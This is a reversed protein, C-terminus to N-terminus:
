LIHDGLFSIETKGEHSNSLWSFNRLGCFMKQLKVAFCCQLMRRFDTRGRQNLQSYLGAEKVEVCMVADLKPLLTFLRTRGPTTNVDWGLQAPPSWYWQISCPENVRSYIEMVCMSVTCLLWIGKSDGLRRDCVVCWWCMLAGDRGALEGKHCKHLLWHWVKVVEVALQFAFCCHDEM